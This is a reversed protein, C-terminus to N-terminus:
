LENCEISLLFLGMFEPYYYFVIEDIMIVMLLSLVYLSHYRGLRMLTCGIEVVVLVRPLLLTEYVRTIIQSLGHYVARTTIESGSQYSLTM